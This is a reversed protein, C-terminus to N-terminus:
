TPNIKFKAFFEIKGIARVDKWDLVFRKNFRGGYVDVPRVKSSM